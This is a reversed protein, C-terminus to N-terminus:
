NRNSGGIPDGALMQLQPGPVTNEIRAQWRRIDAAVLRQHPSPASTTEIGAALRELRDSLVARVEAPNGASSAEQMMRDAVSRQVGHIVRQRYEDEAPPSNWTAEILRDTVEELSPRFM